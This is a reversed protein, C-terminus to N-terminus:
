LLHSKYKLISKKKNFNIIDLWSTVSALTFKHEVYVRNEKTM